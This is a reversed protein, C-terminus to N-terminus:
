LLVFFDDLKQGTEFLQSCFFPVQGCHPESLGQLLVGFFLFFDEVRGREQRAFQSRAVYLGLLPVRGLALGAMGGRFCVLARSGIKEGLEIATMPAECVSPLTPRATKLLM